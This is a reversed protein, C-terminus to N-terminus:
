SPSSTLLGFLNCWFKHTHFIIFGFVFHSFTFLAAHGSMCHWQFQKQLKWNHPAAGASVQSSASHCQWDCNLHLVSYWFPQRNWRFESTVWSAVTIILPNLESYHFCFMKWSRIFIGHMHSSFFLLLLSKALGDINYRNGELFVRKFRHDHSKNAHRSVFLNETHTQEDVAEHTHHRHWGYEHQHASSGTHQWCISIVSAHHGEYKSTLFLHICARTMRCITIKLDEKM